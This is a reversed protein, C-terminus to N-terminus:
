NMSIMIATIFLTATTIAGLIYMNNEQLNLENIDEEIGDKLSTKTKDNKIKYYLPNNSLDVWKNNIVGQNEEIKNNTNITNTLTNSYENSIEILPNIKKDLINSICGKPDYECNNPDYSNFPEINNNKRTELVVSSGAGSVPTTTRNFEQSSMPSSLTQLVISSGAGSVPTTTRNFEQSSMPSSLTQLVISSGAGSVPTTTRNFEQSSMPSSLTQFGQTILTNQKGHLLENYDQKIEVIKDIPKRVLHDKTFPKNSLTYYSYKSYDESNNINKRNENFILEPYEKNIENMDLSKDKIYLSSKIPITIEKSFFKIKLDNIEQTNSNSYRDNSVPIINETKNEEFICYKNGVLESYHLYDCKSDENCKKKCTELDMNLPNKNRNLSLFSPFFNDLYLYEGTPKLLESNYPIQQVNNSNDNTYFMKNMKEDVNLDYLFRNDNKTYKSGDSTKLSNGKKTYLLVLNGFENIKLKFKGDKSILYTFEKNEDQVNKLVNNWNNDWKPGLHDLGMKSHQSGKSLENQKKWEPNSIADEFTRNFFEKIINKQWNLSYQTLQLSVNNNKSILSLYHYPYKSADKYIYGKDSSPMGQGPIQDYLIFIIIGAENVLNLKMGNKIKNKYEDINNINDETNDIYFKLQTKGDPPLTTEDTVYKWIVKEEIQNDEFKSNQSFITKKLNDNTTQNYVDTILCNYLNNNTLIPSSETLSYYLYKPEEDLTYLVNYYNNISPKDPPSITFICNHGGYNEGFQIRIPYMNGAILPISREIKKMGHLSRNNIDCNNISYTNIATNGLWLFSADDSNLGFKWNGTYDPILIGYWEVSYAHGGWRDTKFTDILGNKNTSEQLNSFNTSIGTARSDQVDNNPDLFYKVNDNFYGKVIKFKLGPTKKNKGNIIDMKERYKMDALKIGATIKCSKPTHIGSDVPIMNDILNNKGSYGIPIVNVVDKSPLFKVLNYILEKTSEIYDKDTKILKTNDVNGNNQGSM